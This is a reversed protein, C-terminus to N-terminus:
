LCLDPGWVTVEWNCHAVFIDAIIRRETIGEEPGGERVGRRGM